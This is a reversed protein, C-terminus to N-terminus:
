LEWSIRMSYQRHPQIDGPRGMYEQNTLNNVMLSLRWPGALQWGLWVDALFVPKNGTQWYDYFGPLLGERTLENLFVDDIRLMASQYSITSGVNFQLFDMEWSLKALHKRRYKLYNGTNKGTYPNFEVPLTYTYGGTFQHEFKGSKFAAMTEIEAGYVRAAEINTSKFGFSFDGAEDAYIGFVYEIMNKNQMYFVAIDISGSLGSKKFGQKMGAEANWGSEPEIYPNPFIKVAGLTTSAHREAISPYRFGQGFSTRFFTLKAARFNIGARFLPVNSVDKGDLSNHEFRAGAVLQLNELPTGELQVFAAANFSTHNGHFNSVIRASQQMIGAQMKLFGSLPANLEYHTYVSMSQSNNRETQPFRNDTIMFRSKVAHQWGQKTDLIIFPDLTAFSGKMRSVTATDQVLAGTEANDWLVFDTKDTFGGHLALGYRLRELGPHFRKWKLHYRAVSEENNKRYGNDTLGNIGVSWDSQGQKRLMSFGATAQMRPSSWWKWNSNSPADFIGAQVYAKASPKPSADATRFNIVGNLASSGYAVSSAGKIIEVRSLHDLPLFQWRINGADAAVVPLGDVLALVRSGAGYSFGSGGRVSIQGDLIEVGSVKSLLAAADTIHQNEITKPAILSMSVTLEALRQEVRSATVVVQDMDFVGAELLIALRLTDKEVLEVAESHSKYGLLKFSLTGAPAEHWMLFQGNENTSVGRNASVLVLVGSLPEGSVKDTVRGSIWGQAIAPLQSLLLLALLVFSRM